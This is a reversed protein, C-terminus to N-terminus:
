NKSVRNQNFQETIDHYLVNNVVTIPLEIVDAIKSKDKLYKGMRAGGSNKAAQGGSSANNFTIEDSRQASNSGRRSGSKRQQASMNQQQFM